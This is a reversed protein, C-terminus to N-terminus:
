AAVMNLYDIFPKMIRFTDVLRDMFDAAYVAQDQFSRIVFLQKFKLLEVAPHDKAYGQPATKLKEGKLSGFTRVFDPSAIIDDFARSDRDIARRFLALQEPSPEWFGGAAASDGPALRLGFGSRGSKRGGAVIFATMSTNYPTKDKSFRVDRYIRMICDRARVGTLDEFPSMHLILDDVFGEFTNKAKEYAGKHEEFWIRKNNLALDSLFSFASELDSVAM